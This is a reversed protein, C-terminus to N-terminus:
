REVYIRARLNAECAKRDTFFRLASPDDGRTQRFQRGELIAKLRPVVAAIPDPLCPPCFDDHIVVPTDPGFATGGGGNPLTLSVDFELMCSTCTFARCGPREVQTRGCFPTIRANAGDYVLGTENAESLYDGVIAIDGSGDSVNATTGLRLHLLADERGSRWQRGNEDVQAVLDGSEVTFKLGICRNRTTPELQSMWTDSVYLIKPTPTTMWPAASMNPWVIGFQRLTPFSGTAWAWLMDFEYLECRGDTCLYKKKGRETNSDSKQCDSDRLCQSTSSSRGSDRPASNLNAFPKTGLNAQVCVQPVERAERTPTCGCLLLGAFLQILWQRATNHRRANGRTPHLRFSETNAM